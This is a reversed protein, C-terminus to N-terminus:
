NKWPCFPSDMDDDMMVNGADCYNCVYVITNRGLKNCDTRIGCGVVKTDAWMMQTFHGVKGTPQRCYRFNKVEEFWDNIADSWSLASGERWAINQGCGDFGALNRDDNSNHGTPCTNAWQQAMQAAKENWKLMNMNKAKVINRYHNHLTVIEKQQRKTVPSACNVVAVIATLLLACVVLSSM